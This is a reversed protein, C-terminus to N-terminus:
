VRGAYGEHMDLSEIADKLINIAFPKFLASDIGSGSLRALISDPKEGTIAVIPIGPEIEKIRLSLQWGDMHPMMIDTLILHFRHDASFIRLAEDGDRAAIVDHGLSALMTRILKRVTDDDDVLLIRLKRGNLM